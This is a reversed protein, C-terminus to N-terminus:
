YVYNFRSTSDKKDFEIKKVIDYKNEQDSVSSVQIILTDNMLWLLSDKGPFMRNFSLPSSFLGEESPLQKEFINEKQYYKWIGSSACIWLSNDQSYLDFILENVFGDAEQNQSNFPIFSYGDFRNLGARTGIWLFGKSDQTIATVHNDSLGGNTTYSKTRIDVRNQSALNYSLVLLALSLIVCNINSSIM